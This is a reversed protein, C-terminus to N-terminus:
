RGVTALKVAWVSDRATIFLTKYGPGGFCCNAASKPTRIRGLLKGKVSFVQVGDGATSFLRGASDVRIGDPAGPNIKVFVEGKGLKNNKLVRFRRVHRPRGSDAVYLYKEDPSFCIGNPMNFDSAVIVPEAANAAPAANRM